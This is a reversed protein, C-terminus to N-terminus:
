GGHRTDIDLSGAAHASTGYGVRNDNGTDQVTRCKKCKTQLQKQQINDHTTWKPTRSLTHRTSM